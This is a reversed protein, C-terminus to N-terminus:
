SANQAENMTTALRIISAFIGAFVIIGTLIKRISTKLAHLAVAKIALHTAVIELIDITGQDRPLM